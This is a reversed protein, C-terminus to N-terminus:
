SKGKPVGRWLLKTRISDAMVGDVTAVLVYDYNMNILFAKLVSEKIEILAM